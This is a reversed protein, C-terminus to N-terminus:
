PSRDGNSPRVAPPIRHGLDRNQSMPHLVLETVWVRTQAKVRAPVEPNAVTHLVDNLLLDFEDNVNVNMEDIGMMM